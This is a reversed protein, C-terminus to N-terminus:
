FNNGWNLHGLQPQQYAGVQGGSAAAVGGMGPLQQHVLHHTNALAAPQSPHYMNAFPVHSSQPTNFSAHGTHSPVFGAHPVQGSINYYPPSQLGSLERPTQIWIESSEAQPNPIYLNNEKYKIRSVDDVGTNGSPTMPTTVAYGAPNSYNGYGIPSAGPIPKYQAPAYKLGGPTLHSSGGPMILYSSGAPPHPYGPSGSFSPVAMPPVYLPSLFQRYPFFNPFQPLHVGAPQPYVPAMQQQQMMSVTSPTAGNAHTTLGEQPSAMGQERVNEDMAQRFFPADYNPHDYAQQSFTQLHSHDPEQPEAPGFSSPSQGQVLGINAYNELNQGSSSDKGEPLPCESSVASPSHSGSIGPQEDQSVSQESSIGGPNVVADDMPSASRGDKQEESEMSERLGPTYIKNADLVTGFSGFTLRTLDAEPVRLHDPIIVHQYPGINAESLKESLHNVEVQRRVLSDAGSSTSTSTAEVVPTSTTQKQSLSKPKWEMNTAKQHGPLQQHARVSYQNGLLPRNVSLGPLVPKQPAPQSYQDNKTLSTANGFSSTTAPMDKVLIPISFSSSSVPSQTASNESSQRRAGVIGVERKITGVTGSLGPNRTPVHVPDKSSSYVGAVSSTSALSEAQQESGLSRAEIRLLSNPVSVMRSEEPLSPLHSGKSINDGAHKAGAEHSVQAQCGSNGNSGYNKQDTLKGPSSQKSNNSPLKEIKLAPSHTVDTRNEKNSNQNVRNDRVVRFEQNVGPVNTRTYGGRRNNRDWQTQPHLSQVTHEPRKKMEPPGKPISNEKKRDRKRKVEHFPDLTLLKQATENPDMNSDKLMVYIDHDSHNGVIEKISQITTRLRAPLTHTAVDSKSVSLSM